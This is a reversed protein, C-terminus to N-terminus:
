WRRDARVAPTFGHRGLWALCKEPWERAYKEARSLGRGHPGEPFVHLEHDVGHERLAAAFIESNQYDVMEDTQTTWIFTPPTSAGVRNEASLALLQEPAPASGLLRRRSGEHVHRQMSIVAQSLVLVDPASSQREVPDASGPDGAGNETALLAALHGGASSGLVGVRRPDIGLEAAHARLWRMGRQADRLPVPYRYPDVRYNLVFAAIGHESLWAAIDLGDLKESRFAYGGGPLLLLAPAGASGEVPFAVLYPVESDLENLFLYRLVGSDFDLSVPQPDPAGPAPGSWIAHMRSRYDEETRDLNTEGLLLWACAGLAAILLFGLAVIANRVWRM